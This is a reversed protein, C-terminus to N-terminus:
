YIKVKDNCENFYYSLKVYLEIDNDNNKIKREYYEAFRRNWLNRKSYTM